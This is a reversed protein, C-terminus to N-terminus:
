TRCLDGGARNALDGRTAEGDLRVVHDFLSDGTEIGLHQLLDRKLTIQGKATVAQSVM